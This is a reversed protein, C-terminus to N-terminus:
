IQSSSVGRTTTTVRHEAPVGLREELTAITEPRTSYFREKLIYKVVEPRMFSALCVREGDVEGTGHELLRSLLFSVTGREYRFRCGVGKLEFRGGKYPGVTLLCDYWNQDGSTDLHFPTQRNSIVQTVTFPSAWIKLVGAMLDAYKPAAAECNTELMRRWADVGQDYQAPNLVYLIAGILSFANRMAKLFPIAGDKGDRRRISASVMPQHKPPLHNQMFWCPSLSLVGPTFDCLNGDKFFKPDTRWSKKEPSIELKAHPANVLDRCAEEVITLQENTLLRPLHFYLVRGNSDCIHVPGSILRSVGDQKPPFHPDGARTSKEQTALTQLTVDIVFDSQNKLAGMVLDSAAYLQLRETLDLWDPHSLPETPATYKTLCLQYFYTAKEQLYDLAIMPDAIALLDVDEENPPVPSM